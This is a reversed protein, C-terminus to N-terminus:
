ILVTLNLLLVVMKLLYNVISFHKAQCMHKVQVYCGVMTHYVKFSSSKYASWHREDLSSFIKVYKLGWELITQNFGKSCSLIEPQMKGMSRLLCLFLVFDLLSGLIFDLPALWILCTACIEQGLKQCFATKVCCMAGNTNTQIDQSRLQLMRCILAQILLFFEFSQVNFYSIQHLVWQNWSSIM